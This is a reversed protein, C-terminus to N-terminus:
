GVEVRGTHSADAPDLRLYECGEGPVVRHALDRPVAYSQDAGVRVPAQGDEALEIRLEGRLTLYIVTQAEPADM